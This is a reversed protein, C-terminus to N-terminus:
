PGDLIGLIIVGSFTAPTFYQRVVGFRMTVTLYNSSGSSNASNHIKNGSLIKRNPSSILNALTARGSTGGYPTLGNAGSISGPDYAVDAAIVDSRPTVGDFGPAPTVSVIGVGIDDASIMTGGADPDTGTPTFSAFLVQVSYGSGNNSRVRFQVTV